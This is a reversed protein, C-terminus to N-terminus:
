KKGREKWSEGNVHSRPKQSSQPVARARKEVIFFTNGCVKLLVVSYIAM